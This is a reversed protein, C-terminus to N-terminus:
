ETLLSKRSKETERWTWTSLYDYPTTAGDILLKTMWEFQLPCRKQDVREEMLRSAEELCVRAIDTMQECEEEVRHVQPRDGVYPIDALPPLVSHRNCSSKEVEVKPTKTADVVGLSQGEIMSQKLGNFAAQCELNGSWQTDEERLLGSQHCEGVNGLVNIQSQVSCCKGGKADTLSLPVVPFENAEHGTVCTTELGKAKTTRVRCYRSRIDSKPFYKVGYPHDFLPAKVPRSFGTNLLMKSPKRLKALESPAMPYANKASAKAEPLLEIGHDITRRMSVFKPWSNPLVDHCKEPVCLTNKLVIEGSKELAGLLIGTSSPEEQAPSEDLQMASIMKFGNPQRIDAQVVTPFSGTIALCKASPMPIVQHELLFEMGLVVDFDDM